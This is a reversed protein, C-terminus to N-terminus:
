QFKNGLTWNIMNWWQNLYHSPAPWAVLWQRIWHDYTLGLKCELPQLAPQVRNSSGHVVPEVVKGRGPVDTEPRSRGHAVAQHNEVPESNKLQLLFWLRNTKDPACVAQEDRPPLSQPVFPVLRRVVAVPRALFTNAKSAPQRLIAPGTTMPNSATRRRRSM